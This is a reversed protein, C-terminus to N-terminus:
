LYSSSNSSAYADPYVNGSAYADPYVNTTGSNTYAYAISRM